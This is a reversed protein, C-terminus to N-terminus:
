HQLGLTGRTFTTSGIINNEVTNNLGYDSPSVLVEQLEYAVKACTTDINSLEVEEGAVIAHILTSLKCGEKFVYIYLNTTKCKTFEIYTGDEAFVHFANKIATDM